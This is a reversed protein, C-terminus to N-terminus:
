GRASKRPGPANAYQAISGRARRRTATALLGEDEEEEDDRRADGESAHLDLADAEARRGRRQDDREADAHQGAYPARLDGDGLQGSRDEEVHEHERHAHLDARLEQRPELTVRALEEEEAQEHRHRRDSEHERHAREHRERRTEQGADEGAAVGGRRAEPRRLRGVRRRMRAVLRLRQGVQRGREREGIAEARHEEHQERLEGVEESAVRRARRALELLSQALGRRRRQRARGVLEHAPRQRHRPSRVLELLRLGHTVAQALQAAGVRQDRDLAHQAAPLEEVGAVVDHQLRM